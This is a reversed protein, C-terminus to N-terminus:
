DRSIPEVDGVYAKDIHDVEFGFRRYLRVARENESDVYLMAERVGRAQLRKLAESVMAKGIGRGQHLPSVAVVYLEGVPPEHEHHLKLWISGVLEDQREFLLFLEPDFWEQAMRMRLAIEDWAGQEPHNLFASNNLALWASVDGPRGFARCSLDGLPFSVPAPLRARMQFLQRGPSLGNAAAAAETAPTPRPVWIHVHGGGHRRIVDLSRAILEKEIRADPHRHHPHVVYDVAWSMPGKTIHSYGVLHPHGRITAEIASFKERRGEVLDLYAHEGLPHHDDAAEAARLLPLLRDIDPNSTERLHLEGSDKV